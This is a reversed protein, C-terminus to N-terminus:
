LESLFCFLVLIQIERYWYGLLYLRFVDLHFMQLLCIVSLSLHGSFLYAFNIIIEKDSLFIFVFTLIDSDNFM